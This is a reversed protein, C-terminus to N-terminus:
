TYVSPRHAKETTRNKSQSRSCLCNHNCFKAMFATRLQRLLLQFIFPYYREAWLTFRKSKRHIIHRDAHNHYIFLRILYQQYFLVPFIVIHKDGPIHVSRLLQFMSNGSFDITSSGSNELNGTLTLNSNNNLTFDLAQNSSITVKDTITTTGSNLTLTNYTSNDGLALAKLANNEAGLTLNTAKSATGDFKATLKGGTIATKVNVNVGSSSNKGDLALTKSDGNVTITSIQNTTGQLTLTSTQNGSPQNTMDTEFIITTNANEGTIIPNFTNSEHNMGGVAIKYKKSM